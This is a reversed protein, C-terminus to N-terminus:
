EPHLMNYKQNERVYQDLQRRFDCERNELFEVRISSYYLRRKVDDSIKRSNM